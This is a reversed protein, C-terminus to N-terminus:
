SCVASSGRAASTKSRQPLRWCRSKRGSRGVIQVGIPLRDAFHVSQCSLRPIGILIFFEAYSWADLYNVTQGDIGLQTRWPPFGSDRGASVIFNISKGDGRFSRGRRTAGFGRMWCLVGTTRRCNLHGTSFSSCSRASIRSAGSFMPRLLMGGAFWSFKWWLARAEELGEPRFEEVRFGADRLAKAATRVAGRIEAQVPTRGDDEFFGVKLAKVERDSPWRVPM